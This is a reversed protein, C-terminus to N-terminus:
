ALRRGAAATRGLRAARRPRRQAAPAVCRRLGGSAARPRRRSLPRPRPGPLPGGPRRRRPRLQAGAWRGWLGGGPRGPRLRLCVRPRPGPVARRLGARLLLDPRRAAHARGGPIRRPRLALDVPARGRLRRHLRAPQRRLGRGPRLRPRYLPLAPAAARGRDEGARRRAPRFAGARRGAAAPRGRGPAPQRDARRQGAGLREPRQAPQLGRPGPRGRGRVAPVHSQADVGGGPM